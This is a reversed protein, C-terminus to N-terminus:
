FDKVLSSDSLSISIILDRTTSQEVISSPCPAPKISVGLLLYPSSIAEQVKSFVFLQMVHNCFVTELIRIDKM